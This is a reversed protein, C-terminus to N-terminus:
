IRGTERRQHHDQLFESQELIRDLYWGLTVDFIALRNPESDAWRDCIDVGINYHVPVNWVFSERVEEFTGGARLM